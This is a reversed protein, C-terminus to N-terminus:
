SAASTLAVTLVGTVKVGHVGGRVTAEWPIPPMIRNRAQEETADARKPIAVSYAGAGDQKLIIGNEVAEDLATIVQEAVQTFGEDDYGVHETDVFMNVLRTRMAEKIQWRGIVTDIFDGDTCIGESMYDRGHNTIYLNYRNELMDQLDVGKEDTAPIGYLEKWKWTVSQPYNPAVRGVWAPPIFSNAADHNYCVVTQKNKKVAETIAAKDSTQALLLKEAEVQGAELQALTLVTSSCWASLAALMSADTATPLLFYWDDHTERLTDLATTVAAAATDAAVGFVAVKKVRGPSNELKIQDFLATAALATPSKEASFDKVVDEAKNYEKYPFAGEFSLILPLLTAREAAATDLSIYVVIDQM